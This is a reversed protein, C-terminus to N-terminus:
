DEIFREDYIYGGVVSIVVTALTNPAVHVHISPTDFTVIANRFKFPFRFEGDPYIRNALFRQEYRVTLLNGGSSVECPRLEVNLNPAALSPSTNVQCFRIEWMSFQGFIDNLGALGHVFEYEGASADGTIAIAGHWRALLGKPPLTNPLRFIPTYTVQQTAVISM